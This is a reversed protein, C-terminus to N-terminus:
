KLRLLKNEPNQLYEGLCAAACGPSRPQASLEQGHASIFSINERILRAAGVAWTILIGCSNGSTRFQCGLTRISFFHYSNPIYRLQGFHCSTREAFLLVKWRSSLFPRKWISFLLASYVRGRTSLVLVVADPSSAWRGAPGLDCTLM